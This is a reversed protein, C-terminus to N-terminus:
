FELLRINVMWVLFHFLLVRWYRKWSSQSLSKLVGGGPVGQWFEERGLKFCCFVGRGL